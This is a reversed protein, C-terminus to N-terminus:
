GSTGVIRGLSRGACSAASNERARVNAGEPKIGDPRYWAHLDEPDAAFARSCLAALSLTLPLLTKMMPITAPEDLPSATRPM